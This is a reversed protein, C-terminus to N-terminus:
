LSYFVEKGELFDKCLTDCLEVASTKIWSNTKNDIMFLVYSIFTDMFIQGEIYRLDDFSFSTRSSYGQLFAQRFESPFVTAASGLDFLYYGFGCFGLDIICPNGSSLVINGPQMDAHIIGFTNERSNLESIQHKVLLLVERIIDYHESSFLNADVCYKLEEIANDIRDVDYIPRIFDKSPKFSKLCDHFLALNQGLKYAIENINDEKLTLTFGDIWELITAYCPHNYNELKYEIIYEGLKNSIPKQAHIMDNHSLEKLIQIEANIGEFTHQLGFLGETVPNHIRLLYNKNNNNDTIKYTINENHRIFQIDPNSISYSLLIEKALNNYDM